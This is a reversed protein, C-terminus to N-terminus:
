LLGRACRYPNRLSLVVILLDQEKALMLLLDCFRLTEDLLLGCFVGPLLSCFKGLEIFCVKM